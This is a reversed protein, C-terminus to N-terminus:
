FGMEMLAIEFASSAEVETEMGNLLIKVICFGTGKPATPNQIYINKKDYSLKYTMIETNRLIKPKSKLKQSKAAPSVAFLLALIFILQKM